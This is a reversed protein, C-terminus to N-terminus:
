KASDYDSYLHLSAVLIWTALSITFIRFGALGIFEFGLFLGLVTVTSFILGLFGLWRPLKRTSIITISYLCLALCISTIFVYGLAGNIAFSFESIPQLHSISKDLNTVYQSLFHPLVLGNFLAALMGAIVGLAIVIFALIHLGRHDTLKKSLGYFGFLIFPLCFIALTHAFRIPKRTEIIQAINGGAPHILMTVIILVSGIFLSIGTSKFLQTEM